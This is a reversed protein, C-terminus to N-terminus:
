PTNLPEVRFPALKRRLAVEHCKKAVLTVNHLHELAESYYWVLATSVFDPQERSDVGSHALEEYAVTVYQHLM